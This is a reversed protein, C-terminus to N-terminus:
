PKPQGPPKTEQNETSRNESKPARYGQRARVALDDRKLRVTIARYGGDRQDNTSYYELTYQHRLEDAILAFARESNEITEAHLHRAGSQNALARLFESAIRYREFESRLRDQQGSVFSSSFYRRPLLFPSTPSGGINNTNYQVAYVLVGSRAVLDLTGENTAQKSWTDIGDSFVVIAKRGKLPALKENITRSIADYVSTLYSSKVGNITRRLKGRDNTFDGLFNVREDFTVILVRDQPQLQNVFSRAAKRIDGLISRTSRSTDILLAVNFPAENASFAAIDQAKGDELIQFDARTLGTAFRGARDTVSVPVAVLSTEVRITEAQRQEPERVQGHVPSVGLLWILSIFLIMMQFRKM